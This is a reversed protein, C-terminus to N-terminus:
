LMAGISGSVGEHTTDYDDATKVLDTGVDRVM